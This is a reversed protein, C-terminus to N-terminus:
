LAQHRQRRAPRTEPNSL